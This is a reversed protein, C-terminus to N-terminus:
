NQRRPYAAMMADLDFANPQQNFTLPGGSGSFRSAVCYSEITQAIVHDAEPKTMQKEVDGRLLCVDKEAALDDHLTLTLYPRALAPNEKYDELSTFLFHRRDTFQSLLMFHGSDRHVPFLFMPAAGARDALMSATTAPVDRGIMDDHGDHFARWIEGIKATSERRLIPLKVIDKLKRAVHSAHGGRAFNM